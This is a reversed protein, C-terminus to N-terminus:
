SSKRSSIQDWKPLHHTLGVRGTCIIDFTFVAKSYLATIQQPCPIKIVNSWNILPIFNLSADKPM